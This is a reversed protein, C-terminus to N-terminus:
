LSALPSASWTRSPSASMSFVSPTPMESKKTTTSGSLDAEVAVSRSRRRECARRDRRVCRTAKKENAM